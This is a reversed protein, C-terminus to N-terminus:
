PRARARAFCLGGSARPARPYASPARHKDVYTTSGYGWVGSKKTTLIVYIRKLTGERKWNNNM